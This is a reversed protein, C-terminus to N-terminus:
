PVSAAELASYARREQHPQLHGSDLAKTLQGRAWQDNTRRASPRDLAAKACLYQTLAVFSGLGRQMGAYEVLTELAKQSGTRYFLAQRAETKNFLSYSINFDRSKPAATRVEFSLENSKITSKNTIDFELWLRYKGPSAFTYGGAQGFIPLDRDFPMAHTIDIKEARACFRLPARYLRRAGDPDEIVIRFRKYGPDLEKPVRVSSVRSSNLLSLRINLLVPEFQWFSSSTLSAALHLPITAARRPRDSFGVDRFPTAGPMVSPDIACRALWNCQGPGFFYAAGSYPGDAKSPAMFTLPYEQHVLNFIHGVEHVATFSLQQLYSAGSRANDIAGLFLACGQRPVQMYLGGATDDPTTFGLDFMLGYISPDPRYSHALVVGLNQVPVATTNGLLVALSQHLRLAGVPESPMLSYPLQGVLGHRLQINGGSGGSIHGAIFRGLESLGATPLGQNILGLRLDFAIM